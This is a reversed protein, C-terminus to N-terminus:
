RDERIEELDAMIISSESASRQTSLPNHHSSPFTVPRPSAILVVRGHLLCTELYGDDRKTDTFPVSVNLPRL